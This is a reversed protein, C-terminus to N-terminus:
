QFRGLNFARTQVSDPFRRNLQAGYAELAVGNGLQNETRAALWLADPGAVVVQMHRTIYRRASRYDGSAYALDAM